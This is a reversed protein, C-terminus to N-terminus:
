SKTRGDCEDIQKNTNSIKTLQENLKNDLKKISENMQKLHENM